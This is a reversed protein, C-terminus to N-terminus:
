GFTIYLYEMNVQFICVQLIKSNRPVQFFVEDLKWNLAHIKDHYQCDLSTLISSPWQSPLSTRLRKNTRLSMRLDRLSFITLPLSPPQLHTQSSTQFQDLALNEKPSRQTALEWILRPAEWPTFLKVELSQRSHGKSWEPDQLDQDSSSNLDPSPNSEHGHDM